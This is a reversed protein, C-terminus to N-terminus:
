PVIEIAVANSQFDYPGETTFAFHLTSGAALALPTDKYIEAVAEGNGDLQDRFNTFVPASYHAIIYNMVFDRNLPLIGGGPLNTGPSTGSASALLFYDRFAYSPGADLFFKVWGGDDRSLAFTETELPDNFSNIQFEPYQDGGSYWNMPILLGINAGDVYCTYGPISPWPCPDISFWAPNTDTVFFDFTLICNPDDFPKPYQYGVIFDPPTGINLPNTGQINWNYAVVNSSYSITMEWGAIGAAASGNLLCVYLTYTPGVIADMHSLGTGDDSTFIGILDETGQGLLPAAGFLLLFSLAAATITARRNM